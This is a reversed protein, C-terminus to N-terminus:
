TLASIVLEVRPSAADKEFRVPPYVFDADNEVVGADALGDFAAKLHALANDGDMHAATRKYWVVQVSARTLRPPRGHERAKAWALRRYQAYARAKKQHHVRANQSLAAPPIPLVVRLVEGAAPEAGVRDPGKM